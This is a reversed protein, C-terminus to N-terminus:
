GENPNFRVKIKEVYQRRTAELSEVQKLAKDLRHKLEDHLSLQYRLEEEVKKSAKLGAL